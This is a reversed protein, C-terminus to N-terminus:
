IHRHGFYLENVIFQLRKIKMLIVNRALPEIMISFINTKSSISTQLFTGGFSNLFFSFQDMENM